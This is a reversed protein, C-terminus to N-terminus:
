TSSPNYQGPGPTANKISLPPRKGTGMKWGPSTKTFDDPNYHNPGPM